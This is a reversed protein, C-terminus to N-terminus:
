FPRWVELQLKLCVMPCTKETSFYLPSETQFISELHASVSGVWLDTQWTGWFFTPVITGVDRKKTGEFPPFSAHNTCVWGCQHPFPSHGQTKSPPMAGQLDRPWTEQHRHAVPQVLLMRVSGAPGLGIIRLLSTERGLGLPPWVLCYMKWMPNWEITWDLRSGMIGRGWGVPNCTHTAMGLKHKNKLTRTYPTNGSAMSRDWLCLTTRVCTRTHECLSSSLLAEGCHLLNIILFRISNKSSM